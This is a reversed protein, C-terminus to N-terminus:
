SHLARSYAAWSAEKVAESYTPHAHCIRAIYEASASFEMATVLQAIMVGADAGLVHAGLIRDTRADTLIKVFGVTQGITKARGNISFPFKGVKYAINQQKLSNETHGVSAFEPNTYIVAPVLRHDLRNTQGAIIEAIAVGDDMARHALMPGKIVDGIAYVTACATKYQNDVPIFEAQDPQIGITELGLNQTNPRRGAAILVADAKLTIIKNTSDQLEVNIHTKTASLKNSHHKLLIEMGHNELEKQLIITIDEDLNALLHESREVVTVKSGLRAWVSGLELGIYGGGIVVLHNPIHNLELIEKSTMIRRDQPIDGPFNVVQSGTAIIIHPASYTESKKNNFVKVLPQKSPNAEFNAEGVVFKIGYKKFLSGIGGTLDDVIKQKRAQMIALDAEVGKVTIGHEKLSHQAQWFQYSSHILAKSPICGENLCTGGQVSRKDIVIVKLSLQAARIAAMYGGPGAGIIIVDASFSM